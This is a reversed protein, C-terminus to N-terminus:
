FSDALSLFSFLHLTEPKAVEDYKIRVGLFLYHTDLVQLVQLPLHELNRIFREYIM